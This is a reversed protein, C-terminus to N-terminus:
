AQAELGLFRLIRLIEFRGKFGHNPLVGVRKYDERISEHRDMSCSKGFEGCLM